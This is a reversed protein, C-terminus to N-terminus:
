TVRWNGAHTSVFLIMMRSLFYESFTNLFMIRTKLDFLDWDIFHEIEESVECLQAGNLFWNIESFQQSYQYYGLIKLM